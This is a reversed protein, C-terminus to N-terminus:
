SSEIVDGSIAIKTPTKGAPGAPGTPGPDGKAGAPGAPGREGAPGRPGTPGASGGGFKANQLVVAHWATIRTAASWGRKARSSNVAAQMEDGWHGDAGYKPLKEGDELLLIQWYEVVPGSDGKAPLMVGGETRGGGPLSPNARWSALSQGSLVSLVPALEPWDGVYARFFSLHIHWLHSSDASSSRWAGTRSDKIRGHVTTGNLTGYFERVAALRPDGAAAASSLYGTRKKMEATSLTYDIAAAKDGPGQLDLAVRISYNGPWSQQNASRTNHYGSKAAYIGGLRVGPMIGIARMWLDWMPDTIRAPSPNPSSM